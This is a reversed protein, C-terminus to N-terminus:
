GNEMDSVDGTFTHKEEVWKSTQRRPFTHAIM